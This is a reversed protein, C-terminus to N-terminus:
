AVPSYRVQGAFGLVSSHEDCIAKIVVNSSKDQLIWRPYACHLHFGSHQLLDNWLRELELAAAQKGDSWLLAVMEGFVTVPHDNTGAAERASRLLKGVSDNFRRRQPCGDVMFTALVERADLIQLRKGLTGLDLGSARLASALEARHDETAVVLAAGGAKLGSEVISCLRSILAQDDAYFQVSHVSSSM